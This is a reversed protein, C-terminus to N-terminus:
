TGHGLSGGGQGRDGRPRNRPRSWRVGRGRPDPFSSTSWQVDSGTGTSRVLASRSSWAVSYRNKIRRVESQELKNSETELSNWTDTETSGPDRRLDTRGGPKLDGASPM